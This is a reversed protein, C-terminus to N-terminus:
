QPKEHDGHQVNRPGTSQHVLVGLVANFVAVIVGLQGATLHLGSDAALTALASVGAAVLAPRAKLYSLIQNLM